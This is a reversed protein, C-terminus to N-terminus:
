RDPIRLHIWGKWREYSDFYLQLIYPNTKLVYLHRNQDEPTLSADVFELYIDGRKLESEYFGVHKENQGKPIYSLKPSYYADSIGLADFVPQQFKRLEAVKEKRNDM